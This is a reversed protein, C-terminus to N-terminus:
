PMSWCRTGPSTPSSPRSRSARDRGVDGHRPAPRQVQHRGDPAQASPVTGAQLCLAHHARRRPPHVHRRRHRGRAALGSPRPRRRRCVRRGLERARDGLRAGQRERPAAALHHRASRADAPRQRVPRVAPLDRAAPGVAHHPRSHRSPRGLRVPHRRAEQDPRPREGADHPRAEQLVRRGLRLSRGQLRLPRRAQCAGAAGRRRGLHGRDRHRRRPDCRHHLDENPGGTMSPLATVGLSALPREPM